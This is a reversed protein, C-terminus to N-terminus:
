FWVGTARWRPPHEHRAFGPGERRGSLERFREGRASPELSRLRTVRDETAPHTRLLSPDPIRRGPAFIEEWFRGQHRELKELASALGEPDGTLGAADMDADYERARSLALQLLSGLTPAFILVLVGLWPIVAQGVLLLPVNIFFLVIGMLSMIRTLRTITDALGMVWLDNHRIHSVEHAMVGAFERLNLNRLMGDTVAIASDKPSGLSFANLTRS